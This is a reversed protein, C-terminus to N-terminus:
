EPSCKKGAAQWGRIGMLMGTQMAKPVGCREMFLFAADMETGCEGGAELFLLTRGSGLCSKFPVPKKSNCSSKELDSETKLHNPNLSISKLLCWLSGSLVPPLM